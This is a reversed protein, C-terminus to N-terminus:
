AVKGPEPAGKRTRASSVSVLSAAASVVNGGLDQLELLPSRTCPIGQRQQDLACGGPQVREVIKGIDGVLVNFWSTHVMPVQGAPFPEFGTFAGVPGIGNGAEFTLRVNTAASEILLGEFVRRGGEVQFITRASDCSSCVHASSVRQRVLVRWSAIWM